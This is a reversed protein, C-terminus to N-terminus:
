PSLLTCRYFLRDAQSIEVSHAAPSHFRILPIAPTTRLLSIKCHGLVPEVVEDFWQDSSIEFAVGEFERKIRVCEGLIPRLDDGLNKIQVETLRGLTRSRTLELQIFSLRPSTSVRLTSLAVPIWLLCGSEWRIKFTVKRLNPFKSFDFSREFTGCNDVDPPLM